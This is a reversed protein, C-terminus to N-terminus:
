ASPETRSLIKLNVEDITSMVRSEWKRTYPRIKEERTTKNDHSYLFVSTSQSHTRVDGSLYCVDTRLHSRDCCLIKNGYRQTKNVKEAGVGSFASYLLYACILKMMM